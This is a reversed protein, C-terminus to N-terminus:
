NAQQSPAQAGLGRSNPDGSAPPRFSDDVKPKPKAAPPPAAVRKPPAPQTGADRAPATQDSAPASAPKAKAPAGDVPATQAKPRAVKKPVVAGAEAAAAPDPPDEKLDVLPRGGLCRFTLQEDLAILQRVQEVREGPLSKQPGQQLIARVGLAELAARQTSLKGCTDADLPGAGAPRALLGLMMLGYITGSWAAARWMM